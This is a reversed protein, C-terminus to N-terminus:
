SARWPRVVLLAGLAVLAIGFLRVPELPQRAHLVGFHDLLASGLLQGLVFLCILAAAGLRTVLLASVFVFGAGILGGMWAWWPVRAIAPPMPGMIAWAVALTIAGVVFSCLAAFLPGATMQGLRANLLSQLPVLMGVVVAVLLSALKEM